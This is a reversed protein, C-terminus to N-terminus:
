YEAQKNIKDVFHIHMHKVLAREGTNTALSFGNLNNQKELVLAVDQVESWIEKPATRLDQIHAKPVILLHIDSKPHADKFVVFNDTEYVIDSDIEKKVIKCFICDNM